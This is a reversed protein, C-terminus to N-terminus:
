WDHRSKILKALDVTKHPAGKEGKEWVLQTERPMARMLVVLSEALVGLGISLLLTNGGASAASPSVAHEVPVLALKAAINVVWLVVTVPRYRMWLEAGREGLHVTEGRVLGLLVSVACGIVIFTVAAANATTVHRLDAIGIVTLIAPLVLLSKVELLQGQMRRFMLYGVGAIVLLIDTVNVIIELARLM